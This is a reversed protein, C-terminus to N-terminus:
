FEEKAQQVIKFRKVLQQGTEFHVAPMGARARGMM